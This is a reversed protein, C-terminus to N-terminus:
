DRDACKASNFTDRLWRNGATKHLDRGPRRNDGFYTVLGTTEDIRDPWETQVFDSYIVMFPTTECAGRWRFGGQAKVGLLPRFPDRYHTQRDGLVRLSQYVADVQLSCSALEEYPIAITM